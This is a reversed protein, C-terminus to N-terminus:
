KKFDKFNINSYIYSTFLNFIVGFLFPSTDNNIILFTCLLIEKYIEIFNNM